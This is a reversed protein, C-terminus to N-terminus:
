QARMDLCRPQRLYAQPKPLGDLLHDVRITVIQLEPFVNGTLNLKSSGRPVFQTFPHLTDEDWVAAQQDGGAPEGDRPNVTHEIFCWLAEVSGEVAPPLQIAGRRTLQDLCLVRQHPCPAGILLRLRGSPM